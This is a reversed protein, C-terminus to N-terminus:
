SQNRINGESSSKEWCKLKEKDRKKAQDEARRYQVTLTKEAAQFCM